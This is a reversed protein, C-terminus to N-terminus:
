AIMKLSLERPAETREWQVHMNILGQPTKLVTIDQKVYQQLAQGLQVILALQDPHVLLLKQLLLIHGLLDNQLCRPDQQVINELQVNLQQNIQQTKEQDIIVQM